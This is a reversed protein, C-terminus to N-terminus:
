RVLLIVCALVTVWTIGREFQKQDVARVVRRGCWTGVLVLPAACLALWFMQQTFLGLHATLAAKCLNVTFFFWANTSIFRLKDFRKALFYLAMVPAAANATMTTFGAAVGAGITFAASSPPDSRRRDLWARLGLAALLLLALSRRMWTDDVVDLFWAGLLLGPLVSPLLTLLTRWHVQRRYSGIAVLDGVLLLILVLATSERAPVVLAVIAVAVSGLGGFSTKSFGILPAALALVLLTAWGASGLAATM